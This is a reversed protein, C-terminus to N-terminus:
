QLSAAQQYGRPWCALTILQVNNASKLALQDAAFCTLSRQENPVSYEAVEALATRQSPVEFRQPQPAHAGAHAIKGNMVVPDQEMTALFTTQVSLM